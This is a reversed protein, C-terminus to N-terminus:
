SVDCQIGLLRKLLLIGCERSPRDNRVFDRAFSVAPTTEEVSPIASTSHSSRRRLNSAPCSKSGHRSLEFERILIELLDPRVTAPNLHLKNSVRRQGLASFEKEDGCGGRGNGPFALGGGGDSEPLTERLDPFLGDLGELEDTIAAELPTV